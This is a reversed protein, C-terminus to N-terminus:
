HSRFVQSLTYIWYLLGPREEVCGESAGRVMEWANGITCGRLGLVLSLTCIPSCVTCFAFPSCCLLEQCMCYLFLFLSDWGKLRFKM